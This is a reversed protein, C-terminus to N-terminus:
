PEPDLAAFVSSVLHESVNDLAQPGFQATAIPIGETTSVIFEKLAEIDVDSSSNSAASGLLEELYSMWTQFYGGVQSRVEPNSAGLEQALLPMLRGTEAIWQAMFRVHAGLRDHPSGHALESAHADLVPQWTFALVESAFDDKSSFHHFFAGKTVEAAACIADVSTATYGQVLFLRRGEVLMTQRRDPKEMVRPDYRRPSPGQM